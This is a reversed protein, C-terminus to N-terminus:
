DRKPQVLGTADVAAISPDAIEYTSRRTLDLNKITSHVLVQQAAEPNDLVIASPMVRLAPGQAFCPAAMAAITFHLFSRILICRMPCTKSADTTPMGGSRKEKGVRPPASAVGNAFSNEEPVNSVHRWM